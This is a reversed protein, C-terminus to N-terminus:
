KTKIAEIIKVIGIFPASIILVIANVSFMFVSAIVSKVERWEKEKQLRETMKALQNLADRDLLERAKEVEGGKALDMAIETITRKDKNFCM